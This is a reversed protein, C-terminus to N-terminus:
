LGDWVTGIWDDSVWPIWDPDSQTVLWSRPSTVSNVAFIVLFIAVLGLAARTMPRAPKQLEQRDGATASAGPGAGTSRNDHTLPHTPCITDLTGQGNRTLGHYHRLLQVVLALERDLADPTPPEGRLTADWYRALRAANTRENASVFEIIKGQHEDWAQGSTM